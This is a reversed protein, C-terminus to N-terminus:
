DDLSKKLASYYRAAERIEDDSLDFSVKGMTSDQVVGSRHARLRAVMEAETMEPLDPWAEYVSEGAMGHCLACRRIVIPTGASGIENELSEVFNVLHWIENPSLSNRFSPMAGRGEAIKWAFAGPSQKGALRLLNAPRGNMTLGVIGNGEGWYGHCQLCHQAFLLKGREVSAVDYRLPNLQASAEPPAVWSGELPGPGGARLDTTLLLLFCALWAVWPRTLGRRALLGPHCRSLPHLKM